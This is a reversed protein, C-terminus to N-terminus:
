FIELLLSDDDQAISIKERLATEINSIIAQDSAILQKLGENMHHDISHTLPELEQEDYRTLAKAVRRAELESFRIWLGDQVKFASM